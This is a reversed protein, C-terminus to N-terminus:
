IGAAILRKADALFGDFVRHLEAPEAAADHNLLDLKARDIVKTDDPAGTALDILQFVYRKADDGVLGLRDAVWQGFLRARRAQVRFRTAEDRAFKEEFARERDWLSSM